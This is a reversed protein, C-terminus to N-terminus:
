LLYRNNRSGYNNFIQDGKKIVKGTKNFMVFYNDEDTDQWWRYSYVDRLRTTSSITEFEEM